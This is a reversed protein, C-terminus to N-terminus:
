AGTWVCASDWYCTLAKLNTLNLSAPLGALWPRCRLKHARYCSLSAGSLVHGTAGSLVVANVAQGCTIGTGDIARAPLRAARDNPAPSRGGPSVGSTAAPRGSCACGFCLGFLAGFQRIQPAS